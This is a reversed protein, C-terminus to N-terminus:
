VTESLLRGRGREKGMDELCLDAYNYRSEERFVVRQIPSSGGYCLLIAVVNIEPSSPNASVHPWQHTVLGM